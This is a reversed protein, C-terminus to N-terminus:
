LLWVIVAVTLAAYLAHIAAHIYQPTPRRDRHLAYGAWLALIVVVMLLKM